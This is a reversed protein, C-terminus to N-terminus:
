RPPPPRRLHGGVVMAVIVVFYGAVGVWAGIEPSAEGAFIKAVAATQYLAALGALTAGVIRQWGGSRGALPVGALVVGVLVVALALYAGFTFFSWLLLGADDASVDNDALNSTIDIARGEDVDAWALVFLSLVSMLVGILGLGLLLGPAGRRPRSGAAPAYSSQAHDPAPHSGVPEPPQHSHTALSAQAAPQHPASPEIRQAVPPAFPETGEPIPDSLVAGNAGVVRETWSHGDYWRQGFRGSPDPFWGGNM